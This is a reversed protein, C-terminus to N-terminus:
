KICVRRAGPVKPYIADQDPVLEINDGSFGRSYPDIRSRALMTRASVFLDSDIGCTGRSDLGSTRPPAVEIGQFGEGM